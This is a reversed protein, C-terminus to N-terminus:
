ASRRVHREDELQPLFHFVDALTPVNAVLEHYQWTGYDTHDGVTIVRKGLALAVGVEVLAGRLHEGEEAYVVLVDADRIDAIDTDWFKVGNEPTADIFPELFPWRSVMHVNQHQGYLERWMSAHKMKSAVYYCIM